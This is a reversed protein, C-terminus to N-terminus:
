NEEKELLLKAAALVVAAEKKTPPLTTFHQFFNFIGLDALVGALIVLTLFTLIISMYDFGCLYLCYTYSLLGASVIWFALNSTKCFKYYQKHQLLALPTKIRKGKCWSNLLMHMAGHYKREEDTMLFALLIFRLICIPCLLFPLCFIIKALTLLPMFVVFALILNLVVLFAIIKKIRNYFISDANQIRIQVRMKCLEKKNTWLTKIKGTKDDYWAISYWGKHVNSKFCVGNQMSIHKDDMLLKKTRMITRM